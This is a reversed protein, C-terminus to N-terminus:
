SESRKRPPFAREVLGFKFLGHLVGVFEAGYICLMIPFTMGTELPTKAKRRIDEYIVAAGFLALFFLSGLLFARHFLSMPILVLAGALLIPKRHLLPLRHKLRFWILTRGVLYRQRVLGRFTTRHRHLTRASYRFYIKHGKALCTQCFDYDDAGYKLTEDFPNELAYARLCALNGGTPLRDFRDQDAIYYLGKAAVGFINTPEADDVRGGVMVIRDDVGFGMVLESLWGQPAICDDDTFAVIVGTARRIGVNRAGSVGRNTQNRVIQTDPRSRYADLRQPTADTSADDVVVIEYDPYDQDYLSDLCVGIEAQRNYTCVIVSVRPHTVTVEEGCPKTM